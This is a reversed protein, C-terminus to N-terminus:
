RSDSGDDRGLLAACEENLAEATKRRSYHVSEDEVIQGTEEYILALQRLDVVLLAKSKLM